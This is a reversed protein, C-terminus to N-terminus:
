SEESRGELGKAEGKPLSLAPKLTVNEPCAESHCIEQMKATTLPYFALCLAGLLAGITPIWSMLARIASLTEPAQVSASSDYSFWALVQLLLFGGLAGGFKQAMSSSSFILGTSASGTKWESWEAVDAMMSWILPASIGIGICILVQCVILGWMGAATAPLFWIVISVAAIFLLCSIFTGKKGIRSSIPVALAVGAMQAIEGITLFVACSLLAGTGLINAFYYAAAGGRISGFILQGIGAGLLLWWPGNRLLAKLDKGISSPKSDAAPQVRERTLAFCGIFLVACLGAIIAVVGTWQWPTADGVSGSPISREFLWFIGMAIFSGVYAFFMRFSSFVSKERSDSTMVGLMAGYPVNIATYVTMMLIYTVYAYVHRFGYSADPTYFSLIGVVAFPVAIWLLWPRYRGWRSRTRDAILGMVPDSVADYLKTVLLLLAAHAPRLGFIDSYFIPLYYSFIKWFMSSSMDGLGYGIKERLPSHNDSAM